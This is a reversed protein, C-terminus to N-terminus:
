WLHSAPFKPNAAVAHRFFDIAEDAHGMLLQSSGLWYYIFYQNQARPNLLLTKELHPFAAEPRGLFILDIGLHMQGHADNPDLAIAKELEIQAELLRGQGRRLRGLQSHARADNRNRELAQRLLEDTRAADQERNKTWATGLLENLVSAIGVRADVSEPDLELAKEFARQTEELAAASSHPRNYLAWGR